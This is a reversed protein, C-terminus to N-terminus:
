RSVSAPRGCRPELAQALREVAQQLDDPQDGLWVLAMYQQYRGQLSFQRGPLAHLASGALAAVICDWRLPQRFRVWLMRGGQPTQMAVQQGFQLALARVLYQTRRELETRLEVLHIEIQRKGLMLALAQLRLPALRFAREAFAKALAADHSLVYAYPAEAGVATEFAGLVLLSRPDVWDRLRTRPPGSYCHESDLDNELLWVPHQGLLQGLQQQYHPSVLRGQPMGLCSPMVLMCVPEAGLLRALARLNPNGRSDAPVELVRMGARALAHLVQWCCPSQVLVTGGQLALGVLVTDLLAQVDPALQVDEARWYLSSSRTYSEAVANRLRTDGLTEWPAVGSARQRALRREHGLLMRELLPQVPLPSQPHMPAAAAKSAVQAYYGSRPLCQVRGEEELLNYASQVTALSVRLRRSMARLSPLKCPGGGSAQEILAELYRYVKRYAFEGPVAQGM